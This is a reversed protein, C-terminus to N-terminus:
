DAVEKISNSSLDLYQLKALEGISPPVYSIQNQSLVAIRLNPFKKVILNM